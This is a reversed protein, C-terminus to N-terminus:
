EGIDEKCTIIKKMMCVDNNIVTTVMKNIIDVSRVIHRDDENSQLSIELLQVINKIDHLSEELNDIASCLTEIENGNKVKDM